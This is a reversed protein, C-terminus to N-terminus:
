GSRAKLIKGLGFIGAISTLLAGLPQTIFNFIGGFIGGSSGGTPGMMAGSTDSLTSKEGDLLLIKLQVWDSSGATDSALITHTEDKQSYVSSKDTYHSSNVKSPGDVDGMDQAVSIEAYRDNVFKQDGRLSLTGHSLDIATPVTLEAEITLMWPYSGYDTAESFNVRYDSADTLDQISYRVNHVQLDHVTASSYMGHLTDLGTVDAYGGSTFESVTKTTKTGDGNHDANVDALSSVLTKSEVDLGVVDVDADGDTVVFRVNQIESMSGDGTGGMKLNSLRENYFIGTTTSNVVVNDDATSGSSNIEAYRYDGDSDYARIEVSSGTELTNVAGVFLLVRKDADSTIEVNQAFKAEADDGTEMSTTSIGLAPVGSATAGDADAITVQTANTGGTTWNSSNLWTHSNGTEGSVRPFLQYRDVDMADFRVSAPADQTSNVTADLNTLEGDDAYYQLLSDMESMDHKAVTLTDEHKYVDPSIDAGTNYESSISAAIAPAAVSSVVMAAVLALVFKRARSM